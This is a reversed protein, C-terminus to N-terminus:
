EVMEDSVMDEEKGKVITEVLRKVESVLEGEKRIAVDKARGNLFGVDLGGLGGNTIEEKDGPVARPADAPILGSVVLADAQARLAVQIRSLTEHFTRTQVTFAAKRQALADTQDSPSDDFLDPATKNTL